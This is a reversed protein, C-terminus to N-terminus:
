VLSVRLICNDRMDLKREVVLWAARFPGPHRVYQAAAPILLRFMGDLGWNGDYPSSAGLYPDYVVRM